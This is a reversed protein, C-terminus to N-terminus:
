SRKGSTTNSKLRSTYEAPGGFTIETGLRKLREVMAPMKVTLKAIVADPTAKPAMIGAWVGTDFGTGLGAEAFTFVKM